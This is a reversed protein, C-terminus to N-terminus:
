PTGQALRPRLDLTKCPLLATPPLLLGCLAARLRFPSGLGRSGLWSARAPRQEESQSSSSRTAQTRLTAKRLMQRAEEYNPQIGM